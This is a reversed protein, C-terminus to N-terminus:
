YISLACCCGVIRTKVYSMYKRWDKDEFRIGNASGSEDEVDLVIPEGQEGLFFLKDVSPYPKQIKTGKALAM